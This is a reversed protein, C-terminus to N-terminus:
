FSATIALAIGVATNIHKKTTGLHQSSQQQSPVATTIATTSIAQPDAIRQRFVVATRACGKVYDVSAWHM